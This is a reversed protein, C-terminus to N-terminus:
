SLIKPSNVYVYKYCKKICEKICKKNKSYIEIIFSLSKEFYVDYKWIILNSLFNNYWKM